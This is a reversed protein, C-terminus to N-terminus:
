LITPKKLKKLSRITTYSVDPNRRHVESLNKHIEMDLFIKNRQDATIPKKVKPLRIHAQNALRWVTARSVGTKIAAQRANPDQELELIVRERKEFPLRGGVGGSFRVPRHNPNSLLQEHDSEM